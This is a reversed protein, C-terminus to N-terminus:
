TARRLFRISTRGATKRGPFFSETIQRGSLKITPLLIESCAARARTQRGYKVDWELTLMPLAFQGHSAAVSPRLRRQRARLLFVSSHWKNVTVHGFPSAIAIWARTSIVCLKGRSITSALSATTEEAM